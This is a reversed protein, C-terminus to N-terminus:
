DIEIDGKHAIVKVRGTPNKEKKGVFGTVTRDVYYRTLKGGKGRSSIFTRNSKLPSEKTPNTKSICKVRANQPVDITNTGSYAELSYVAQPSIKLEVDGNDIDIDINKFQPSVYDVELNGYNSEAIMQTNLLDIDIDTFDSKINIADVSDIRLESHKANYSLVDLKKFRDDSYLSNLNINKGKSIRVDSFESFISVNSCHRINLRSHTVKINEKKDSSMESLNMENIFLNGYKICIYSSPHTIKPITINGLRNCLSYQISNPLKIVCKIDFLNHYKSTNRRVYAIGGNLENKDPISYCILLIRSLLKDAKKKNKGKATIEVRIDIQDKDWNEIEIDTFSSKFVFKSNKVDKFTHQMVKKSEVQSFVTSSLLIVALSFVLRKM